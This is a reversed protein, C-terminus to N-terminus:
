WAGGKTSVAGMRLHQVDEFAMTQPDVMADAAFPESRGIIDDESNDFRDPCAGGDREVVWVYIDRDLIDVLRLSERRAPSTVQLLENVQYRVNGQEVERLEACGLMTDTVFDYVHVEVELNPTLNGEAEDVQISEVMIYDEEPEIYCGALLCTALGGVIVAHM